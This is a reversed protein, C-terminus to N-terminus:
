KRKPVLFPLFCYHIRPNTFDHEPRKQRGAEAKQGSEQSAATAIIDLNVANRLVFRFRGSGSWDAPM